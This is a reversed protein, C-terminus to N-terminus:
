LFVLCLEWQPRGLLRSAGNEEGACSGPLCRGGGNKGLRMLPRHGPWKRISEFVLAASLPASSKLLFIRGRTHRFHSHTHRRRRPPAPGPASLPERAEPRTWVRRRRRWIGPLPPARGPAPQAPLPSPSPASAPLPDTSNPAVPIPPRRSARAKSPPLRLRRAPDTPLSRPPGLRPRPSPRPPSRLHSSSRSGCPSIARAAQPRPLHPPSPRRAERSDNKAAGDSPGYSCLGPSQRRAM